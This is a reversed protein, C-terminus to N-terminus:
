DAGSGGTGGSSSSTPANACPGSFDMFADCADADDAAVIADCLESTCSACLEELDGCPNSCGTVGLAVVMMIPTCLWDIRM